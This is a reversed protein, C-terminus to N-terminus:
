HVAETGRELRKVAAVFADGRAEASEFMDFSACGPSLLVVDGPKALEAAAEVAHQMSDARVVKSRKIVSAMEDAAAGILVVARTRSSVAKGFDTFDTGKAKGGAILVIHGDDFTRLAAIVSGPNTAKSDDIYRVGGIEDVETLRHPLATFSAVSDRIKKPQVGASLTMLTAAMVNDVNHEGLLPIENVNMIDIPRPDGTPPAYVVKENNRLYLTSNRHPERSYWLARCKIRAAGEGEALTGIREDDLNGVFTDGANQNAFIRFKAEAYEDMSFYRDLHDPSINIIASIKPKFSRISELQFSSVEAVVWDSPEAAMVEEILPNGINGGVRAKKNAGRLIHGVLATTTTKGKTGTLAIIPAKCLRFALEIESYVPVRASQVRRVLPSNLPVGPSLVAADLEGLMEDVNSPAVFTAGLKKMEALAPALNDESGEDTAWIKSGLGNLVRVSARGSKGLGIILVREFGAIM